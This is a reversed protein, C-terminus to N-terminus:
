PSWQKLEDKQFSGDVNRLKKNETGKYLGLVLGSEEKHAGTCPLIVGNSSVSLRQFPYQCAWNPDILEEVPEGDRLDLMENVTIM